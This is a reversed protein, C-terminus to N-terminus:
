QGSTSVLSSPLHANARARMPDTMEFDIGILKSRAILSVRAAWVRICTDESGCRASWVEIVPQIVTLGDIQYSSDRPVGVAFPRFALRQVQVSRPHFRYPCESRCTLGTPLHHDLILHALSLLTKSADVQCESSPREVNNTQNV